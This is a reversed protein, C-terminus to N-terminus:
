KGPFFGPFYRRVDLPDSEAFQGNKIRGIRKMVKERRRPIFKFFQRTITFAPVADADIVSPSDTEAPFVAVSVFDLNNIIM